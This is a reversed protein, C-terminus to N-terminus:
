LIADLVPCKVVGTDQLLLVDTYNDILVTVELKDVEQLNLGSM